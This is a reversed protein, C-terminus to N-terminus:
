RGQVDQVTRTSHELSSTVTGEVIVSRDNFRGPNNQVDAIRPTHAACGAAAASSCRSFSAALFRTNRPM